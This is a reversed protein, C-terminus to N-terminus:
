QYNNNNTNNSDKFNPEMSKKLSLKANRVERVKLNKQDGANFYLFKNFWIKFRSTIRKTIIRRGEVARVKNKLMPNELAHKKKNKDQMYEDVQQILQISLLLLMIGCPVEVLWIIGQLSGCFGIVKGLWAKSESYRGIIYSAPIIYNDHPLSGPNSPNNSDPGDTMFYLQNTVTDIFIKQIIHFKRGRSGASMSAKQLTQTDSGTKDSTVLNSHVASDYVQFDHNEMLRKISSYATDEIDSVGPSTDRSYSKYHNLYTLYEGDGGNREASNWIKGTSLNTLWNAHGIRQEEIEITQVLSWLDSVADYFGIKDGVRLENIPVQELVVVDGINFGESVMSGSLVRAASMGFLTPIENNNRASFLSFTCVGSLIIIPIIIIDTFIDIVKYFIESFRKM